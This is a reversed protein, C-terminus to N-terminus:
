IGAAIERILNRRAKDEEEIKEQNIKQAEEWLATKAPFMKISSPYAKEVEEFMKDEGLDSRGDALLCDECVARYCKRMNDAIQEPKM